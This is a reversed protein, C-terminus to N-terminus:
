SDRQINGWSMYFNQKLDTSLSFYMRYQGAPVNPSLHIINSVSPASPMMQNSTAQIRFAGMDKINMRNDVIVYKLEVQGNYGGSFSFMLAAVTSFPNPFFSNSLVSVTDSMLTGALSATDLGNFLNQEQTTFVKTEWQGDNFWTGILNGNYDVQDQKSVDIQADDQSKNCSLLIISTFIFVSLCSRIM